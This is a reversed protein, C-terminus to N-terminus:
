IPLEGISLGPGLVGVTSSAFNVFFPTPDESKPFDPVFTTSLGEMDVAVAGNNIVTATFNITGGPAVSVASPTLTFVPDARCQASVLVVSAFIVCALLYNRM